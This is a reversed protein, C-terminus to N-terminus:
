FSASCALGAGGRPAVMVLWTPGASGQRAGSGRFSLYAGTVTAVLGVGSLWNSLSADRQATRHDVELKPSCPDQPCAREFEGTEQWARVGFYAGAFLSALGVGLIAHGTSRDPRTSQAATGKGKPATSHAKRKPVQTATASRNKKSANAPSAPLIPVTRAVPDPKAPPPPITILASAKAALEVTRTFYLTGEFRAQVYHSGVNVATQTGFAAEGLSLGDLSVEVSPPVESEREITLFSLGTELAKVRERAIAVRDSRGQARAMAEAEQFLAWATANKGWGEYCLALALLTGAAPELRQSEALRPCAVEYEGRQLAEKGSRFLSEARPAEEPGAVVVSPVALLLAGV